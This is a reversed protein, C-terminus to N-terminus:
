SSVENGKRSLYPRKKKLNKIRNAVSPKAYYMKEKFVSANIGIFSKAGSLRRLARHLDNGVIVKM